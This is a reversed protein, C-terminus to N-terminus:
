CRSVKGLCATLTNDIHNEWMSVAEELQRIFDPDKLTEPEIDDKELQPISPMPLQIEGEIHEITRPVFNLM